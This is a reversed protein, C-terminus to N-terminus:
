KRRYVMFDENQTVKDRSEKSYDYNKKTPFFADIYYGIEDFHEFPTRCAVYLPMDDSDKTIIENKYNYYGCAVDNERDYYTKQERDKEVSDYKNIILSKQYLTHTIIMDYDKLNVGDLKEFNLYDIKYGHLRLLDVPFSYDAFGSFYAIKNPKKEVIYNRLRCVNLEDGSYGSVASRMVSRLTHLNKDARFVTIIDEVKRYPSRMSVFILYYCGIFILIYKFINKYSKIYTCVLVPVSIMTLTTLYRSNYETFIMVGAFLLINFIYAFALASLVSKKNRSETPKKFRFLSIVVSPLFALLGLLGMGVKTELLYINTKIMDSGLFMESTYTNMHVGILIHFAECLQRSFENFLGMFSIGSFDGAIMFSYKILNSLYGKIGGRFRNIEYQEPTTVFNNFDIYNLIYNYSSFLMFNAFFFMAFKLLPKYCMKKEFAYSIALMVIAVSPLAIVATTKVGCSLALALSSFYLVPNKNNKVGSYFLYVSTLLLSGTFMNTDTSTTEILVFALSSFIFVTWLRKRLCFGLEGLFCYLVIISNIYGCFPLLSLGIDSKLFLIVWAFVLESNIPMSIMRPDVTEFHALTGNFIWHVARPVHYTMADSLTVPAISTLIFALVIFFLLPLISFFLLKDKKLAKKIDLLFNKIQPRYVESKTKKMLIVAFVFFLSNVLLFNIKNIAGFLSLLEFSLVIVAFASLFMYPIIPKTKIGSCHELVSAFIYSSIFIILFSILFLIM